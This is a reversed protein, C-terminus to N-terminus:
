SGCQRTQDVSLVRLRITRRCANWDMWCMYMYHLYFGAANDNDTNAFITLTHPADFQDRMQSTSHLCHTNISENQDAFLLSECLTRHNWAVLQTECLIHSSHLYKCAIVRVKYDRANFQRFNVLRYAFNGKKGTVCMLASFRKVFQRYKERKQFRCQSHQIDLWLISDALMLIETACWLRARKKRGALPWSKM